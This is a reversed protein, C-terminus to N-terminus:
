KRNKMYLLAYNAILATAITLWFLNIMTTIFNWELWFKALFVLNVFLLAILALNLVLGVGDSPLLRFNAKLHGFIGYFLVLTFIGMLIVIFITFAAPPDVRM